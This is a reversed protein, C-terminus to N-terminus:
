GRKGGKKARKGRKTHWTIKGGLGFMKEIESPPKVTIYTGGGFHFTKTKLKKKAV